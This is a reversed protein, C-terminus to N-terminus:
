CLKSGTPKHVSRSRNHLLSPPSVFFTQAMIGYIKTGEEQAMALNSILIKSEGNVYLEQEGNSQGIDNLKLRQAVTTWQGKPFTFAGRAVSDGYDPNCTSFPAMTCYNPNADHAGNPLYNYIEGMGNTRWMTRASFCSQRDDQRGGSCSKANDFSTGGYLGPLKGGKVFDFDEPFYVSYTFTVESAGEVNVGNHQGESYFSFGGGNKLGVIGAPYTASLAQSGDPASVTGPLKGASLPNIADSFSLASASDTNTTWSASGSGIPFISSTSGGNGSNGSNGGNGSSSAASSAAAVEATSSAPVEVVTTSSPTTSDQNSGGAPASVPSQAGCSRKQRRVKRAGSRLHNELTGQAAPLVLDAKVVDRRVAPADRAARRTHSSQQIPTLNRHYLHPHTWIDVKPTAPTVPVVPSPHASAVLLSALTFLASSHM